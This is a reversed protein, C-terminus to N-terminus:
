IFVEQDLTKRLVMHGKLTYVNFIKLLQALQLTLIAGPLFPKFLLGQM